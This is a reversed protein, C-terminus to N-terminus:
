KKELRAAKVARELNAFDKEIFERLDEPTGGIPYTGTQHLRQIVAPEKLIAQLKGNLTSIIEQPSGAPALFAFWGNIEFGPLTEAVAPIHELGPLRKAAATAIPRLRGDSVMAILPPIGDIVVQTRGTMADTAALQSSPYPIHVMDIGAMSKLFEGTVQPVNRFGLTGFNVKGPHQKAYAILEPLTKVPLTANVAIMMPSLGVNIVPAFDVIPDYPLNAMTLRNMSIGSTSAFLITYGDKPAKAAAGMGITQNAGARNEVVFRQPFEASLREALVRAIVDPAGGAASPVIVSVPRTPWSQALTEQSPLVALALVLLGPLRSM